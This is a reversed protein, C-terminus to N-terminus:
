KKLYDVFGKVVGDIVKFPKMKTPNQFEVKEADKIVEDFIEKYIELWFALLKDAPVKLRQSSDGINRKLNKIDPMKDHKADEKLLILAIAGMEEKTIKEM